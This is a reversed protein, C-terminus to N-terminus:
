TTHTATISMDIYICVDICTNFSVYEEVPVLDEQVTTLDKEVGEYVGSTSTPAGLPM